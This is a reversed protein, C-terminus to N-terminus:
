IDPGNLKPTPSQIHKWRKNNIILSITVQSVGFIKSLQVNTYNYRMERIQIIQKATLQSLKNREGHQVTDHILMDAMNGKHTDWRLHSGNICGLHGKGCSHAAEHAETPPPGHIKECVIRSVTHRRKKTKNWIRVYGGNGYPWLLCQDDKCLVARDIFALQQQKKEVKGIIMPDGHRRKLDYHHRYLGNGIVINLCGDIICSTREIAKTKRM